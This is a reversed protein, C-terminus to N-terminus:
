ANLLTLIDAIVAKNEISQSSDSKMYYLQNLLTDIDGLKSQESIALSRIIRLMHSESVPDSKVLLEYVSLDTYSTNNLLVELATNKINLSQSYQYLTEISAQHLNALKAHEADALFRLLQLQEIESLYLNFVTNLLQAQAAKDDLSFLLQIAFTRNEDIHHYLLEDIVAKIQETTGQALIRQLYIRHEGHPLDVLTNLLQYYIDPQSEALQAVKNLMVESSSIIDDNSMPKGLREIWSNIDRTFSVSSFNQKHLFPPSIIVDKEVLVEKKPFTNELDDVSLRKLDDLTDNESQLIQQVFLLAFLTVGILLTVKRLTMILV